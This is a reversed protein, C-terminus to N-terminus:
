PPVFGPEAAGGPTVGDSGAGWVDAGETIRAGDLLSQAAANGRAVRTRLWAADYAALLPQRVGGADVVVVVDIGPGVAALATRVAPTAHPLDGAVVLVWPASVDGLAAGIAAVPGGYPPDERRWVVEAPADLPVQPGVVVITDAGVVSAVAHELLSRGRRRLGLKHGGARRARGGALVVADYRPHEV